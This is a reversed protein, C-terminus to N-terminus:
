RIYCSDLQNGQRWNRGRGIWSVGQQWILRGLFYLKTYIVERIPYLVFEKTQFKHVNMVKERRGRLFVERGWIEM